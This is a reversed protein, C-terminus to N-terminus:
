EIPGDKRSPKNSGLMIFEPFIAKEGLVLEGPVRNQEVGQMLRHCPAVFVEVTRRLMADYPPGRLRRVV